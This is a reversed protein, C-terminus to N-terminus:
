RMGGEDINMNIFIMFRPLDACQGARPFVSAPLIGSPAEGCPLLLHVHDSM